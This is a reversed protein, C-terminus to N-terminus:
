TTYSVVEYMTKPAAFNREKTESIAVYREGSTASLANTYKTDADPLPPEATCDSDGGDTKGRKRECGKSM